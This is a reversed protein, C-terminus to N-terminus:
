FVFLLDIAMLLYPISYFTLFLLILSIPLLIVVFIAYGLSINEKKRSSLIKMSILSFIVIVLYTGPGRLLIEQTSM